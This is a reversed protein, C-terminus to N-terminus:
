FESLVRKIYSGGDNSHPVYTGQTLRLRIELKDKIKQTFKEGPLIWPRGEEDYVVAVGNNYDWRYATRRRVQRPVGGCHETTGLASFFGLDLLNHSLKDCGM